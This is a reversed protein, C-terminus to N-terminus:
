PALVPKCAPATLQYKERAGDPAQLVMTGGSCIGNFGYRIPKPVEVRWGAPVKVAYDKPDASAALELARGASYASYGLNGIETLLSDRESAIAYRQSILFLRPLAVGALLGVIVLVVLVEILTFGSGRTKGTPPCFASTRM